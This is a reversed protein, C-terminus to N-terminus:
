KNGINLANQAMDKQSKIATTNAEFGRTAGILNVMEEMLNVNPMSVMGSADADPHKPDFIRKGESQDTRIESVAVGALVEEFPQAEFVADQRKYPGGEATRTTQANAINSSIVNIRTRQAKLGSASIDMATFLDM